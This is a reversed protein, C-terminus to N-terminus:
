GIMPDPAKRLCTEQPSPAAGEKSRNVEVNPLKCFAWHFVRWAYTTAGNEAVDFPRDM